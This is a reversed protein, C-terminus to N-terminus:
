DAVGWLWAENLVTQGLRHGSGHSLLGLYSEVAQRGSSSRVRRLMRRRTAGRLVRHDPFHVWGLFDVGSGLTRIRVKRPHLALRLRSKLFERIRPLATLLDDRREAFIVFDDAYRLYRHAHVQHKMFKDFPDMYINVLLQSTLNGLPLGKGPVTEFSRVVETMLALIADDGIQRRLLDLLVAHDISAFFKRIDCQLVWATRTGNRSVQRGFTRFRDMALHVGKGVRSSYSDAILTRDFAPALVRHVAHHVLRDRVSAKHILRPKPDAIAFSQYGGHRYAGSALDDHLALIHDMLYSGYEAVDAKARKGRQFERWAALLNEECVIEQLCHDIM